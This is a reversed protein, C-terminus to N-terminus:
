GARRDDAPGGHMLPMLPALYKEYHRWRGISSRSIKQRAQWKSFTNVTRDTRYFELCGPEWPLAIFDLMRRSWTEMDEVLGEYPVELIADEPLTRRWHNMLRLYQEYYHALDGLDNAYPHLAGFNQFYISLCTDVPNRSLHIIKAKPLAAHIVGLYLFNAPMKDVVRGATASCASLLALYDNALRRLMVTEDEGRDRAMAYRDSATNWFPLEGAGFVGTHSALIQEALTTGSRPVGVILVPMQSSNTTSGVRALWGKDQERTVRDIGEEYLRREHRPRTQSALENARRYNAFAQDYDGLDDFYKGMAYRLYLESSGPANAVIRQATALWSADAVTMRRLGAIGAWAEASEPEIGAAQRYLEEAAAFEGRDSRLEASLRLAPASNSDLALARLCVTQAEQTRSQLRMVIGLNVLADVYGPNLAIAYEYHVAAEALKGVSLLVNGLNNRAQAFSPRLGLARGYSAIAEDFQGLDKQVNGLNNWLEPIGPKLGLARRFCRMAEELRGMRRLAAGLNGHCDPDDPLLQTARELPQLAEKGQMQLAVGLAKWALGSQPAALVIERALSEMDAYRSSRALTVLRDLLGARSEAAAASGRPRPAAADLGCCYKYKRGSGCSCRENRGPKASTMIGM